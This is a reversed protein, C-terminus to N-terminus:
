TDERSTSPAVIGDAVTWGNVRRRTRARRAHADLEAEAEDLVLEGPTPADDPDIGHRRAERAIRGHTWRTM